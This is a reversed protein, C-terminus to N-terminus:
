NERLMVRADDGSPQLQVQMDDALKEMGSGTMCDDRERQDDLGHFLFALVSSKWLIKKKSAYYTWVLFVNGFIVVLTPLIMWAWQVRVMVENTYIAGPIAINSNQFLTKTLSDAVQSGIVELGRALIQHITGLYGWRQGYEWGSKIRSCSDNTSGVLLGGSMVFSGSEEIECYTFEPGVKPAWEKQHLIDYHREADNSIQSPAWCLVSSNGHIGPGTMNEMKGFDPPSKETITKGNTVHINYEKVCFTFACQTVNKIFIGETPDSLNSIRNGDFGLKSQALVLLPNKVGSYASGDLVPYTGVDWVSEMSWYFRNTTGNKIVADFTTGSPRGRPPVVECTGNVWDEFGNLFANWKMNHSSPPMACNLTATSTIDSCQSCFGLSKYSPWTCNGSPCTPQINFDKTWIGLYFASAKVNTNLEVDDYYKVQPVAAALTENATLIPETPYSLIQQVFPEFALMLILITAGLSALPQGRHRFLLSISGLPGRSADEFASLLILSNM